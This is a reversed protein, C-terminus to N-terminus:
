GAKAMVPRRVDDVIEALEQIAQPIAAEAVPGYGVLLGAPGDYGPLAHQTLSQVLVGISTARECVAAELEASPLNVVAHLGADIGSVPLDPLWTGLARVVADRRRRYIARMRSLHRDFEGRRLFDALALQELAPVILMTGALEETISGVFQSPVVAWGLRLAPALSKGASGLYVVHEPSLGQLAGIPARDYRFLADYDDEVILGDSTRAWEILRRRRDASLVVGTPFQHAPSVVVSEAEVLELEDVRVGEGDVPVAIPTQGARETMLRLILHSPNEWAMRRAGTRALAGSILSLAHASGTTIIVHEPNAAVGRARGLYNAIEARLELVGRSDVYGLQANTASTVASRLSRLWAQRPFSSVDPLHPRLDYRVRPGAPQRRPAPPIEVPSTKRVTPNAGQRLELYGEAALQANARGTVGRSVELDQALARTSPLESGPALTGSRIADRLQDELQRRLSPRQARDVRVLLDRTQLQRPSV